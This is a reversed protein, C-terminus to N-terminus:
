WGLGTSLGILWYQRDGELAPWTYRGMVEILKLRSEPLWIRLGAEGYGAWYSDGRDAPGDARSTANTDHQSWAVNYSGGVGVFPAVRGHPMLRLTLGFGSYFSDERGNNFFSLGYDGFVPTNVLWMGYGFGIGYVDDSPGVLAAFSGGAPEEYDEGKFDDWDAGGWVAPPLTLMAALIM